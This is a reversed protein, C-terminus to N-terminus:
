VFFAVANNLCHAIMVLPLSNTKEYAYALVIGITFTHFFAWPDLHLFAFYLASILIGRNRGWRKKFAQYSFGRFHIEEVVPAIVSVFSLLVLLMDATDYIEIFEEQIPSSGIFPETSVSMAMDLALTTVGALVGIVIFKPEAM